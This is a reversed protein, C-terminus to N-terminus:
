NLPTGNVKMIAVELCAEDMLRTNKSRTITATRAEIYALLANNLLRYKHDPDIDEININDAITALMTILRVEEEINEQLISKAVELRNTMIDQAVFVMEEREKLSDIYQQVINDATQNNKEM